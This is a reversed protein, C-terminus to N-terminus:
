SQEIKSQIPRQIGKLRKNVDVRVIDQKVALLYLRLGHCNNNIRYEYGGNENM